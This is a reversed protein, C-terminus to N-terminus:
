GASPRLLMSCLDEQPQIFDADFNATLADIGKILTAHSKKLTKLTKGVSKHEHIIKLQHHEYLKVIRVM